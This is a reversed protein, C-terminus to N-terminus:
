AEELMAALPILRTADGSTLLLGGKEDIGTFRGHLTERPLRVTVDTGQGFARGLWDRHLKGIGTESWEHIWFLTHRSWSELMRVPRIDGCGEERLTTEDPTEGPESYAEAFFRLDLGIVLWDPEVAPDRTSAAARLGGARAGNIRILGPWDFQCAVEAPALAGFADAFGNTAALVMAMADELPVEPALVLAASLHDPRIRHTLLGADTGGRAAAVAAAFPDREPRGSLLPPLSPGAEAAESLDM